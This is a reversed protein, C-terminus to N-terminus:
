SLTGGDEGRSIGAAGRFHATALAAAAGVFSYGCFGRVVAGQVVAVAACVREAGDVVEEPGVACSEESRDRDEEGFLAGTHSSGGTVAFTM